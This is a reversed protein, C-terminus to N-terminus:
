CAEVIYSHVLTHTGTPHTVFTHIHVTHTSQTMASVTYLSFVRERAEIRQKILLSSPRM